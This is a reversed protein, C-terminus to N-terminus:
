VLAAYRWEKCNSRALNCSRCAPQINRRAYTGGPEIRDAEVSDFNLVAGCHVCPCKDGDGFTRLMWGKRARRNAASGRKDGGARAAM